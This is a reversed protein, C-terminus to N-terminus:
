LALGALEIAESLTEAQLLRLSSEFAKIGSQHRPLLCKKFGLRQAASLRRDIFRVPRLEGALGVEGMAVLDQEIPFNRFNSVIALAVPLDAAPEAVQIGGAVNVFIDQDYLRYGCRKELVAILLAVRRYDVGSTSRRPAGFGGNYSTLAQIEILMPRSGEMAPMIISGASGRGARHEIFVGAPNEVPMLGDPKMEFVGVEDAAGFRNKVVRLLRYAFQSEGEFYVVADVIHELLRPGAIVGAKTVHGILFVPIGGEKALRVLRASCEKLQVVSGPVSDVDPTYVAQISDIIVALPNLLQCQAIIEDVQTEALLYLNETEIGLRQARLRLQGLSEEGSVYLVIKDKFCRCYQAAVQLMLTSKGIGPEGAILVVASPLIGGGVVRDFEGIGSVIRETEVSSVERLSVPKSRVGGTPAPSKKGTRQRVEEVLSNWENCQPCKGEWRSSVFGCSQCVFVIKGKSSM